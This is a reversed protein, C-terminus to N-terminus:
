LPKPEWPKTILTGFIIAASFAIVFTALVGIAAIMGGFFQLSANDGARDMIWYGPIAGIGNGAILMGYISVITMIAALFSWSIRLVKRLM